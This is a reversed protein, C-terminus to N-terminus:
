RGLGRKLEKLLLVVQNSAYRYSGELAQMAKDKQNTQALAVVNSAQVHFYKHRAILVSFAPYKGLRQTGPGHLWKGLDCRDDLCVIEPQLTETSNGNLYNQLRLKWNEHAAIATDIDIESLIAASAQADLGLETVAGTSAVNAAKDTDKNGLSFLRSFFGM